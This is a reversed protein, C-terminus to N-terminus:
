VKGAEWREVAEQVSRMALGADSLVPILRRKREHEPADRDIAALAIQVKELEQLAIEVLHVTDPRRAKGKGPTRIRRRGDPLTLTKGDASLVSRLVTEMAAADSPSLVLEDERMSAFAPVVLGVTPSHTDEGM